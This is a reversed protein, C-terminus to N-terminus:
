ARVTIEKAVGSDKIQNAVKELDWLPYPQIDTFRTDVYSDAGSFFNQLVYHKLPALQKAIELVVELKSIAPVVTTRFEYPIGAEKVLEISKVVDNFAQVSCKTVEYYKEYELPAKVDLAIYDLLEQDIMNKLQDYSGGNTDLKIALDLDKVRQSFEVIDKQILPEGGLLVVGDLLNKRKQFFDLVEQTKRPTEFREPLVVEVNYCYGCRFNCGQFFVVSAVKGPFDILSTKILSGIKVDM